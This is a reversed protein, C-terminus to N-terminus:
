MIAAARLMKEEDGELSPVRTVHDQKSENIASMSMDSDEIAAARLMTENLYYDAPQVSEKVDTASLSPAVKPQASTETASTPIAVVSESVHSDLYKDIRDFISAM